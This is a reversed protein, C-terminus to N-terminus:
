VIIENACSFKVHSQPLAVVNELEVQDGEIQSLNGLVVFGKARFKQIPGDRLILTGATKELSAESSWFRGAIARLASADARAGSADNNNALLGLAAGTASLFDHPNGTEFWTFDSVVTNVVEGAAIAKTLADYLINSESEPLYEFVRENLLLLGIYHLGRCGPFQNADKGFGKVYGKQDAWVGGFQKGVLPHNMVLITAFAGSEQHTHFFRHMIQSDHPLIVEDGNAVLFSGGGVLFERAKWIGGGSGLPQGPEPSLSIKYKAGPIKNALNEIQEPKYHTNLVLESIGLQEILNLPYYMLPINLFPVAPKAYHNTVPRLRTGLGATLLM